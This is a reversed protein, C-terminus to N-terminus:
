FLLFVEWARDYYIQKLASVIRSFILIIHLTAVRRRIDHGLGFIHFDRDWREVVTRLRLSIASFDPVELNRVSLRDIVASCFQLREAVLM